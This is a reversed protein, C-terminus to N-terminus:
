RILAVLGPIATVLLAITALLWRRWDSRKAADSEMAETAAREERAADQLRGIQQGHADVRATLREVEDRDSKREMKTQIMALDTKDAKSALLGDLRAFGATQQSEIRQLLEAVTFTIVPVGHLSQGTPVTSEEAM